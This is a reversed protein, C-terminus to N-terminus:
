FKITCSRKLMESEQVNSTIIIKGDIVFISENKIKDLDLQILKIASTVKEFHLKRAIINIIKNFLNVNIPNKTLLFNDNYQFVNSSPLHINFFKKSLDDEILSSDFEEGMYDNEFFKVSEDCIDQLSAAYNVCQYIILQIANLLTPSHYKFTELPLYKEFRNYDFDELSQFTIDLGFACKVMKPLIHYLYKFEGFFEGMSDNCKFISWYEERVNLFNSRERESLLLFTGYSLGFTDLIGRFLNEFKYLHVREGLNSVWVREKVQKFKPINILGDVNLETNEDRLSALKELNNEFTEREPKFIIMKPLKYEVLFINKKMFLREMYHTFIDMHDYNTSHISISNKTSFEIMEDIISQGIFNKIIGIGRRKLENKIGLPLMIKNDGKKYSNVSNSKIELGHVYKYIFYKKNLDIMEHLKKKYNPQVNDLHTLYYFDWPKYDFTEASSYSIIRHFLFTPTSGGHGEKIIVDDLIPIGNVLYREILHIIHSNSPNGILIYNQTLFKFLDGKIFFKYFGKLLEIENNFFLILEDDNGRKDSCKEGIIFLIFSYDRELNLREKLPKITIGISYIQNETSFTTGERLVDLFLVIFNSKIYGRVDAVNTLNMMIKGDHEYYEYLGMPNYYKELRLLQHDNFYKYMKLNADNLNITIEESNSSQFTKSLAIKNESLTPKYILIGPIFVKNNKIFNEFNNLNNLNKSRLILMKNKTLINSFKVHGVFGKANANTMCIQNPVLIFELDFERLVHRNKYYCSWFHSLIELFQNYLDEPIFLYFENYVDLIEKEKEGKFVVYFKGNDEYTCICFNTKM